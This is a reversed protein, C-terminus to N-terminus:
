QARAVQSDGLKSQRANHGPNELESDVGVSAAGCGPQLVPHQVEHVHIRGKRHRFLVQQGGFRQPLHDVVVNGVGAVGGVGREAVRRIEVM